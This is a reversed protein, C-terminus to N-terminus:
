WATSAVARVVYRCGNDQWGAFGLRTNVFWSTLASRRDCSWFWDNTDPFSDSETAEPPLTPDKILSLLENVTPLRWREIGAFRIENLASVLESATERDVPQDSPRSQWILGTSEDLMTDADRVRFQRCSPALPQWLRDAAFVARAKDGTIRLPSSRLPQNKRRGRVQHDQRAQKRHLELRRLSAAMDAANQFRQDPRWSLAKAFFADWAADYLPNVRSLMFEKMAPLEGTLMRYLLVGAAYLDARGDAGEPNGLQEPATYYPSGIHMGRVPFAKERLRRAMGFDCIKISDAESVLMNFPKIDRHIIGASHICELAALIQCGYAVVKDAPVRRSTEEVLYHEGIMMGLNACFYEMVYFPRDQEDQGSDLVEAINPHDLGSMIAAETDFIEQLAALGLAERLPESPDLLKLAVIRGTEPTLARYVTGMGGHGLIGSIM